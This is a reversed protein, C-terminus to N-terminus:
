SVGILDFNSAHYMPAVAVQTTLAGAETSMHEFWLYEHGWKHSVPIGDFAFNVLNPEVVFQHTIDHVRNDRNFAEDSDLGLYLVTGAPLGRFPANNVTKSLSYMLEWYADTVLSALLQQKAVLRREPSYVDVGEYGREQSWNIGVRHIPVVGPRTYFRQPAVPYMAKRTGGVMRHSWTTPNTLYDPKRPDYVWTAEGDYVPYKNGAVYVRIKSARLTIAGENTQYILYQQFRLIFSQFAAYAETQHMPQTKNRHSDGKMRLQYKRTLTVGAGTGSELQGEYKEQIWVGNVIM